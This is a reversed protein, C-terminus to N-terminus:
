RGEPIVLAVRCGRERGDEVRAPGIALRGGHVEAVRLALTLGLGSGAPPTGPAAPTRAADGRYFPELVREREAAAIGPGEDTVALVVASGDRTASLTVPPSGYKGANEVLNWLARRLLAEDAVFSVDPGPAVRVERGATLPDAATRGAVEALLRRADVPGLQTPLGTRELRATALVDEILRDLDALDQELDRIRRESEEDRPLLELAVRIRALPSRLEHSVNALLTKQGRVLREVREAMEDFAQTLAALEDAHRRRRHREPEVRATLDGEGLRRAADTLREVPRSIRRALPWTAFAVVLLVVAGALAPQSLGRYPASLRPAVTLTAVVPGADAARVPAVARWVPRRDVVLRGARVGAVERRSPAPQLAGASGLIRGELDRVTVDVDLDREVRALFAALAAPDDAREGALGAVHRTLREALERVFAGRAGFAFVASVAVGVVLLVALFHVYIRTYLRRM